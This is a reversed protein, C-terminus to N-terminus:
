ELSETESETDIELLVTESETDTEELRAAELRAGELLAHPPPPFHRPIWPRFRRRPFPLDMDMADGALPGLTLRVRGVRGHDPSGPLVSHATEQIQMNILATALEAMAKMSAVTVRIGSSYFLTALHSDANQGNELQAVVSQAAAHLLNLYFTSEISFGNQSKLADYNKLLLWDTHDYVVAHVTLNEITLQHGGGGGVRYWLYYAKLPSYNFSMQLPAQEHPALPSEYVIEGNEISSVTNTNLDDNAPVAVVFLVGKANGWGQDNWQCTLVVSHTRHPFLIPIWASRRPTNGTEGSGGYWSSRRLLPEPAHLASLSLTTRFWSNALSLKLANSYDLFSVAHRLVEHPLTVLNAPQEAM